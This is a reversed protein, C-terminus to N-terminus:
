NEKFLVVDIGMSEAADILTMPRSYGVVLLIDVRGANVENVLWSKPMNVVQKPNFADYVEYTTYITNKSNNSKRFLIDNIRNMTAFSIDTHKPATIIVNM